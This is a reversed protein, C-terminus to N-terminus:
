KHTMPGDRTEAVDKEFHTMVWLERTKALTLTSYLIHVSSGEAGRAKALSVLARKLQSRADAAASVVASWMASLCRLRQVLSHRALAHPLTGLRQPM